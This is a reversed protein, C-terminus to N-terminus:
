PYGNWHGVTCPELQYQTTNITEDLTNISSILVIDFYRKGQNLDHQFLEAGFMFPGKDITSINFPLPDNANSTSYSSTILVKNLTDIVKNYFVSVLLVM